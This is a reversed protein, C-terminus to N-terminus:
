IWATFMQQPEWQDSEELIGYWFFQYPLNMGFDSLMQKAIQKTLAKM